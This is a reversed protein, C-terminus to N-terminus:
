AVDTTVCMHAIKDLRAQLQRTCSHELCESKGVFHHQKPFVQFRKFNALLEQEVCFAEYLTMKVSAVLRWCYKRYGSKFRSVISTRTIGVKLFREGAGSFEILYLTAPWEKTEPHLRFFSESYGGLALLRKRDNSCGPCGHRQLHSAPTQQFVGHASCTIDMKKAAGVYKGYTYKNDHIANARRVFHDKAQHQYHGTCQPCGAGDLHARFWVSFPGHLQCIARVKCKKDTLSATDYVYRDGHIAKFRRIIQEVSHPLNGACQQCGKGALHGSPTQSFPGHVPCVIILPTGYNHYVTQSYDFHDGHIQRAKSIFQETTLRRASATRNRGCKTCGKGSLHNDPRQLFSGHIRCIITVPKSTTEYKSQSYDYRNGHKERARTIFQETTLRIM